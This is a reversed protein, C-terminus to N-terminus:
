QKVKAKQYARRLGKIVNETLREWHEDASEGPLEDSTEAARIETNSFGPEGIKKALTIHRRTAHSEENEEM